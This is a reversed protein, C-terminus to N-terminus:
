PSRKGVCPSSHIPHLVVVKRPHYVKSVHLNVRPLFMAKFRPKRVWPVQHKSWFIYIYLHITKLMHKSSTSLNNNIVRTSHIVVFEYCMKFENEQKIM